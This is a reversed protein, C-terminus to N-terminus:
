NGGGLKRRFIAAGAVLGIAFTLILRGSTADRSVPTPDHLDCVDSPVMRGQLSEASKAELAAETVVDGVLELFKQSRRVNVLRWVAGASGLWWDRFAKTRFLALLEARLAEENDEGLDWMLWFQSFTLNYIIHHQLSGPGDFAQAAEPHDLFIRALEFQRQRAMVHQQVTNLRWQLLLSTVVGCFALGSLVAAVGGYAQGINSLTVWDDRQGALWHFLLPATVVIATFATLIV